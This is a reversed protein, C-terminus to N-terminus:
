DKDSLHCIKMVTYDSPQLQGKTEMNNEKGNRLVVVRRLLIMKYM